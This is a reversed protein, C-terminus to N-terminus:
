KNKPITPERQNLSYTPAIVFPKICITLVGCISITIIVEKLMKASSHSM